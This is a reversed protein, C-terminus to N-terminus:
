LLFDCIDQDEYEEFLDKSERVARLQGHIMIGIREAIIQAEQFDHTVFLITCGFDQHITRVLQYMQEKTKPDLASFPEDMLLLRPNLVLTRALATRQQEGGSLTMPSRRCLHAIGLKKAMAMSKAVREKKSIRRMKLGYAINDLVTLHPFLGYDQYVFGIGREEPELTALNTGDLYIDGSIGQHYGAISELFLTKGSGTKGLIAFIERDAIKLNIDKLQFQGVQTSFDEVTLM